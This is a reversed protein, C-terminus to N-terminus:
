LIDLYSILCALLSVLDLTDIWVSTLCISLILGTSNLPSLGSFLKCQSTPTDLLLIEDMRCNLRHCFIYVMLGFFIDEFSVLTALLNGYFSHKGKNDTTVAAKRHSCM